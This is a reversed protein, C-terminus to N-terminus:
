YSEATEVFNVGSDLVAKFVSESYPEGSGIDSVMAGTRGLRRYEKIEPLSVPKNGPNEMMSENGQIGAGLLGLSSNRIFKRRNLKLQNM